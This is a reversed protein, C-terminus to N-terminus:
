CVSSSPQGEIEAAVHLHSPPLVLHATPNLIPRSVQIHAHTNPAPPTDPAPIPLTNPNNPEPKGSLLSLLMVLSCSAWFVWWHIGCMPPNRPNLPKLQTLPPGHAGDKVNYGAMRSTWCPCLPLNEEDRKSKVVIFDLSQRYERVEAANFGDHVSSYSQCETSRSEGCAGFLM